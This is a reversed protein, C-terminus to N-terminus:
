ADSREERGQLQVTSTSSAAQIAALLKDTEWGAEGGWADALYVAYQELEPMACLAKDPTRGNDQDLQRADAAIAFLAAVFQTRKPTGHTRRQASRPGWLDGLAEVPPKAGLNIPAPM